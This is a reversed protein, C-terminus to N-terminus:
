NFTSKSVHDLHPFHLESQLSVPCDRAWCQVLAQASFGWIDSMSCSCPPVVYILFGMEAGEVSTPGKTKYALQASDPGPSALILLWIPYLAPM